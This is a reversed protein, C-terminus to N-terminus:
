ERFFSTRMKALRVAIETAREGVRTKSDERMLRGTVGPYGAVEEVLREIDQRSVTTLSAFAVTVAQSAIQQAALDYLAHRMNEDNGTAGEIWEFTDRM